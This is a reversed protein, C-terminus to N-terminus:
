DVSAESAGPTRKSTSATGAAPSASGTPPPSGLIPMGSGSAVIRTAIEDGSPGDQAILV